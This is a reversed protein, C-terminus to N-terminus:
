NQALTKNTDYEFQFQLQDLMAQFNDETATHFNNFLTLVEMFTQQEGNSLNVKWGLIFLLIEYQEQTVFQVDIGEMILILDKDFAENPLNLTSDKKFRCYSMSTLETTADLSPVLQEALHIKEYFFLHISSNQFTTGNEKFIEERFNSGAVNNYNEQHIHWFNVDLNLQVNSFPEQEIFLVM